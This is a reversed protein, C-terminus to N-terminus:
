MFKEKTILILNVLSGGGGGVGRRTGKGRKRGSIIDENIGTFIGEFNKSFAMKCQCINQKRELKRKRKETM